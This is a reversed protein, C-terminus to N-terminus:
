SSFFGGWWLLGVTLIFSIFWWGFSYNDRPEGHKVLHIAGSMVILVVMIIQPIGLYM